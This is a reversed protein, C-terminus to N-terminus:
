YLDKVYPITFVIVLLAYTLLIALVTWKDKRNKIVLVITAALVITQVILALYTSLEFEEMGPFLVTLVPARVVNIFPAWYFQKLETIQTPWFLTGRIQVVYIQPRDFFLYQDGFYDLKSMLGGFGWFEQHPGLEINSLGRTVSSDVMVVFEADLAKGELQDVLFYQLRGNETEGLKERIRVKFEYALPDDIPTTQIAVLPVVVIALILCSIVINRISRNM